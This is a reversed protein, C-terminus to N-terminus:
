YLPANRFCRNKESIAAVLGSLGSPLRLPNGAFKPMALQGIQWCAAASPGAGALHAFTSNPRRM